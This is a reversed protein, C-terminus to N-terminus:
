QGAGRRTRLARGRRPHLVGTALMNEALRLAVVQPGKVKGDYSFHGGADRFGSDPLLDHLDFFAAGAERAVARVRGITEALGRPDAIGLRELYEVDMPVTYVVAPIGARRFERLAAGLLTLVPHDAPVGRLAEGYIFLLRERTLRKRNGPELGFPAGPLGDGAAGKRGQAWKRLDQVGRGVRVQERQFSYWQEMVGAHGLVLYFLLRDFTVGWPSLPLRAMEPLRRLPVLGLLETRRWVGQWGSSLSALNFPVIVMDPHASAIPGSLAYYELSSMAPFALSLVRFGAGAKVALIRDFWETVTQGKPYAMVTSDGLFAVKKITPIRYLRLVDLRPRLKVAPQLNTKGYETRLATLGRTIGSVTIAAVSSMTAAVLLRRAGLWGSKAKDRRMSEVMPRGM